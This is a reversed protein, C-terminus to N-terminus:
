PSTVRSRAGAGGDGPWIVREPLYGVVVRRAIARRLPGIRLAIPALALLRSSRSRLVPALLHRQVFEQLDQTSKVPPERRRQIADLADDPIAGDAALLPGLQNATAVADQVALNIGVGGVPSM